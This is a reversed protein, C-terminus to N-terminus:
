QQTRVLVCYGFESSEEPTETEMPRTPTPNTDIHQTSGDLGKSRGEITIKDDQIKGHIQQIIHYEPEKLMSQWMGHIYARHEIDLVKRWGATDGNARWKECSYNSGDM